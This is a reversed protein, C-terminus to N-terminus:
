QQDAIITHFFVSKEEEWLGFYAFSLFSGSRTMLGVPHPALALTFWADTRKLVTPASFSHFLNCDVHLRLKATWKLANIRQVPKSRCLTVSVLPSLGAHVPGARHWSLCPPIQCLPGRSLTTRKEAAAEDLLLGHIIIAFHYSSCLKLFLHKTHIKQM